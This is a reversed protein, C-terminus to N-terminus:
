LIIVGFLLCSNWRHSIESYFWCDPKGQNSAAGAPAAQTMAAPTPTTLPAVPVGGAGPQMASAYQNNATMMVPTGPHAYMPVAGHQGFFSPQGVVATNAMMPQGAPQAYYAVM